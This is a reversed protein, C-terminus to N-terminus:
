PRPNLASQKQSQELGSFGNFHSDSKRASFLLSYSRSQSAELLGIPKMPSFFIVNFTTPFLQSLPPSIQQSFPTRARPM